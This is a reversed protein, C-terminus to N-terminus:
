KLAYRIGLFARTGQMPTYSYDNPEFMVDTRGPPPLVGNGPEGFPDWWRAIADSKPLINFINKAGGYVEFGNLFTKTLQINAIFTMPSFENRYDNDVRPLRMQGKWDATFDTSWGNKFHYSALLTGSWKPAHYLQSKINDEKRYVDMYSTGILLRLPIDLKVDLNLSIGKSVAYGNLNNYVIKTQDTDTDADIKNTFYTYFGTVDFNFMGFSTPTTFVYNLNINYSEEPKLDSNIIVERAGTLARHDETFVNVVRFGTGTSLRFTNQPNPMYKYALRPSHIFQHTKDYDMRYGMLLTHNKHINWQDQIFLGPIPTRMPNNKVFGHEDYIGTGRTDDDYFTYKFSAGLLLSHNKYNSDWYIQGFAVQQKAQYSEIGYYSNQNHWNYSFQTFVKESVPLQYQSIIEVRNTFISEAYIDEGGRHEKRNWNTEGGWRDEYLYRIALNAIKDQQRKFNWKNFVSIRDQQTVDTFGDKNKDYREGFKFYNIGLLSQVKESTKFKTTVDLNHELWSTSFFDINFLPSTDPDKTIINIIGGMAETGYLSSAPGKVVEVRDIMSIPIGSMGYVSALSSIIPMGDILIMTYAGEMGNIHIDGTNCVNCNLQPQVGNILQLGEFLNASPNKQFFKPTYIEIPIASESKLIPKLSTSIVIEEMSDDEQLQFNQTYVDAETLSIKKLQTKYGVYEVKIIISNATPKITNLPLEYFGNEDTLIGISTQDISVSAFPLLNSNSYVNGKLHQAKAFTPILLLYYFLFTFFTLNRM